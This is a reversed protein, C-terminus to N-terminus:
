PKTAESAGRALKALCTYELKLACRDRMRLDPPSEACLLIEAESHYTIPEGFRVLAAGIRKTDGSEFDRADTALAASVASCYDHVRRLELRSSWDRQEMKKMKEQHDVVLGVVAVGVLLVFVVIWYRNM